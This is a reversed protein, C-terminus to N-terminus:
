IRVEEANAEISQRGQLLFIQTRHSLEAWAWVLGSVNRCCEADRSCANGSDSLLEDVFAHNPTLPIAFSCKRHRHKICEHLALYGHELPM